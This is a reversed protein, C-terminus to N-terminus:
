LKGRQILLRQEEMIKALPIRTNALLKIAVDSATVRIIVGKVELVGRKDPFILKGSITDKEFFTMGKKPSFKIGAESLDLVIFKNKDHEFIPAEAPRYSIRFYERANKDKDKEKDATKKDSSM